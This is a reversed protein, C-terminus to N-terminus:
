ELLVLPEKNVATDFDPMERLAIQLNKSCYNDWILAYAKIWLHDFKEVKDQYRNFMMEWKKEALRDKRAKEADTGVTAAEGM